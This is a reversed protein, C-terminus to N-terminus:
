SGQQKKLFDDLWQRAHEGTLKKNDDALLKKETGDSLQKRDSTQVEGSENKRQPLFLFVLVGLAILGITVLFINM